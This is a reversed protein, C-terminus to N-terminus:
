VGYVGGLPRVSGIMGNALVIGLWTVTKDFLGHRFSSSEGAQGAFAGGFTIGPFETVVPPVLNHRLTVDVLDDMPM